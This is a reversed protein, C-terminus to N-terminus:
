RCFRLLASRDMWTPHTREPATQPKCPNPLRCRADLAAKKDCSAVAGPVECSIVTMNKSAASLNRSAREKGEADLAAGAAAAAGAPLEAAAAGAPLEERADLARPPEAAAAAGAPLEAPHPPIWKASTKEGVKDSM